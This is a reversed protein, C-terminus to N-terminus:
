TSTPGVATLGAAGSARFRYRLFLLDAARKVGALSSWLPLEPAFTRGSVLGPREGMSSRGVIQSAVTLFLEDLLHESLFEGMLTPGGELLLLEARGSQQVATLVSSAELHDDGSVSQVSVSDPLRREELKRVGAKTTVILARVEGSSFVPLSLDLDGRASVIVNLPEGSRGLSRRLEVFSTTLDPYIHGPTWLHHPVSRLTGAGVIVADAVSRLIGMVMRDHRNFGTIEGGGSRGKPNLSVVGDLSSAFNAFVYPASDPRGLRLPGYLAALLGPLPIAAGDGPELFTELPALRNVPLQRM